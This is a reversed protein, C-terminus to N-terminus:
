PTTLLDHNVIFIRTPPDVTDALHIMAMRSPPLVLLDVVDGRGTGFLMSSTIQRHGAVDLLRLQLDDYSLVDYGVTFVRGPRPALPSFRTLPQSTFGPAELLGRAIPRDPDHVDIAINAAAYIMGDSFVGRGASLSVDGHVVETVASSTVHITTLTPIGSAFIGFLIGSPGGVLQKPSSYTTAPTHAARFVGDDLVFTGTSSTTSFADYDL